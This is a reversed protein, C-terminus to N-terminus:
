AAVSCPLTTCGGFSQSRKRARRRPLPRCCICAAPAPHFGTGASSARPQGSAGLMRGRPLSVSTAGKRARTPRWPEAGRRGVRYSPLVCLDSRSDGPAEESGGRRGVTFVGGVLVSSFHLAAPPVYVCVCGLWSVFDSVDPIRPTPPERQGLSGRRRADQAHPPPPRPTFRKGARGRGLDNRRWSKATRLICVAQSPTSAACTDGRVRTSFFAGARSPTTRSPARCM